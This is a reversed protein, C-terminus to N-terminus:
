IREATMDLGSCFLLADTCPNVEEFVLVSSVSEMRELGATWALVLALEVWFAWLGM